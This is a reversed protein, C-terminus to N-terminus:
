QATVWSSTAGRWYNGFIPTIQYRPTGASILAEEYCTQSTGSAHPMAKIAGLGLVTLTGACTGGSLLTGGNGGVMTKSVQYGTVPMGNTMAVSPWTVTYRVYLGVLNVTTVTPTPTAAITTAAAMAPAPPSTLKWGAAAHPTGGLTLTGALLVVLSAALSLLRSM